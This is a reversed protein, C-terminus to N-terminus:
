CNYATFAAIFIAINELNLNLSAGEEVYGILFSTVILAFLIKIFNILKNSEAFDKSRSFWRIRYTSIIKSFWEQLM